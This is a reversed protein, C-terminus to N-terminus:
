ATDALSGDRTVDRLDLSSAARGPVGAAEATADSQSRIRVAVVVALVALTFAGLYGARYSATVGAGAWAAAAGLLSLGIAAGLEQSTNLLGSALGQEDEAVGSTGAIFAPAYSLGSGLAVIVLGPLVDTFLNGTASVRTLYLVGAAILVMGAALMRRVGFRDVLRGAFPSVVLVILTVPAFALGVALPSYGLILQLYLSTFFLTGGVAAASLALVANGARVFSNTLLGFRMMPAPHRLEIVLFAVLLALAATMVLGFGVDAGSEPLRSLGYSLVALGGALSAAGGLDLQTRDAARSEPLIRLAIAFALVGIPVNILFIWRWGAAATILGGLLQGAIAGASGVAGWFGLARNRESGEAFTTTILALANPSIAAAGLGQLVRAAFLQWDAQAAGSLLSGCTFVVLGALFLRRRGFLDGARGAVILLSGFALTYSISVLPLRAEPIALSTKIAPLAVNVVVIDIILLLQAACLVALVGYAILFRPFPFRSMTETVGTVRQRRPSRPALGGTTCDRYYIFM